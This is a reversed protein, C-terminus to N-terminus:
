AHATEPEENVTMAIKEPKEPVSDGSPTDEEVADVSEDVWRIPTTEFRDNPHEPMEVRARVEVRLDYRHRDILRDIWEAIDKRTWETQDNAKHLLAFLKKRKTRYLKSRLPAPFHQRKINTSYPKANPGLESKHVTETDVRGFRCYALGVEIAGIACAGKIRGDSDDQYLHGTIPETREIGLRMLTSLRLNQKTM